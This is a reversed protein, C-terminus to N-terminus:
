DERSEAIMTCQIGGECGIRGCTRCRNGSIHNVGYDDYSMKLGGEVICRSGLSRRTTEAM